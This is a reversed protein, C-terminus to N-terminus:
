PYNRYEIVPSANAIEKDLFEKCEKITSFSINERYGGGYYYTYFGCWFGLWNKYQPYYETSDYYVINKIRYKM